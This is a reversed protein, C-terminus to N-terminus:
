QENCLEMVLGIPPIKAYKPRIQITMQPSLIVM